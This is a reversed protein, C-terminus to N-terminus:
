TFVKNKVTQLHTSVASIHQQLNILLVISWTYLGFETVGEEM